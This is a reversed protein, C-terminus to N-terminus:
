SNLTDVLNGVFIQSIRKESLYKEAFELNRSQAAELKSPNREYFRIKEYLDYIDGVIDFPPPPCDAAKCFSEISYEDAASFVICGSKLGELSIQHFLGSCIDDVVYDFGQLAQSFTKYPVTDCGFLKPITVIDVKERSLLAEFDKVFNQPIKKSWRASTTRLHGIIIASRRQKRNFIKIDPIINAIPISDNFFRGYGQAVSFVNDFANETIIDYCFLPPEFPPSHMHFNLTAHGKVSKRVIDIHSQQTCNHFIVHDAQKAYEGLLNAWNEYVSM